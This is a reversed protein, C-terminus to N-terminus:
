NLKIYKPKVYTKIMAFLVGWFIATYPAYMIAYGMLLSIPIFAMTIYLAFFIAEDTFPHKMISVFRVIYLYLLGWLAIYGFTYILEAYASDNMGIDFADNRIRKNWEDKERYYIGHPLIYNHANKYIKEYQSIRQSDSSNEGIDQVKEYLRYHLYTDYSEIFNEAANYLYLFTGSIITIYSIFRIKKSLNKGRVFKLYFYFIYCTVCYLFIGRTQSLIGMLFVAFFTIFQVWKSQGVSLGVCIPLAILNPCLYSTTSDLALRVFGLWGLYAAGYITGLSIWFLINRNLLKSNKLIFAFLIMYFWPRYAALIRYISSVQNDIAGIILLFAFISFFPLAYSITRWRTHKHELVFFLLLFAEIINFPANLCMYFPSFCFFGEIFYKLYIIAQKM